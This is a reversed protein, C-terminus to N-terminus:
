KGAKRERMIKFAMNRLTEPINRSLTLFKIDTINLRPLLRLTLDLPVKPNSVLKKVVIYNKIFARNAAIMRLIDENLNAMGAFTEVEQDTLKPSQLVARQVLKNPDRILTMREERNGTLSLKIREVVKMKTLRQILSDRKQKDPELAALAEVMAAEDIPAEKDMEDLLRKQEATLTPNMGLAAALVPAHALRAPDNLLAQVSENSLQPALRVLLDAPAGPNQALADAVGPKAALNEACYQIVRPSADDRKLAAIFSEVPISLLANAAREKIMDDADGALIALLEARDEPAFGGGSIVAM